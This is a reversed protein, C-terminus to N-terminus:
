CGALACQFRIAALTLVSNHQRNIQSLAMERWWAHSMREPMPREHTWRQWWSANPPLEDPDAADATAATAASSSSSSPQQQEAPPPASAFGRRQMAPAASTVAAMHSRSSLLAASHSHRSLTLPLAFPVRAAAISVSATIPIRRVSSQLACRAITRYMSQDRSLVPWLLPVSRSSASVAVAFPPPHAATVLPSHHTPACRSHTSPRRHTGSRHLCIHLAGSSQLRDVM